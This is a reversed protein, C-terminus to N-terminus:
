WSGRVNLGVHGAAVEPSVTIRAAKKEGKPATLVLIAGTVIGAAGIGYAVYSNLQSATASNVFDEHDEVDEDTCEEEDDECIALAKDNESITNLTFVVGVGVGVVGLGGVVFGIIRQTSGPKTGKDEPPKGQETPQPTTTQTDTVVPVVAAGTGSADELASVVVKATAGAGEAKADMHLPKKGTATVDISRVGPDVPAPVGWLGQPVVAGDRKIELGPLKQVEPSVEIVLKTLKPELASAEDRALQERDAQRASAAQAAAERYTSWASATQGAEKYCLALNLLTGVAPDLRQSDALKPCAESYRKAERLRKGEDFLAEAAAKDAASQARAVPAIGVSALLALAVWRSTAL